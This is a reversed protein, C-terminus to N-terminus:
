RKSKKDKKKSHGKFLRTPAFEGLKHGVMDDTIFVPIHQRGNHIAFTYGVMISDIVSARSWTKIIEKKKKSNEIRKIKKYLDTAIYSLNTNKKKKSSVLFVM